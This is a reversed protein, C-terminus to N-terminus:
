SAMWILLQIGVAVMISAGLSLGAVVLRDRVDERVRRRPPERVRDDDSRAVQMEVGRQQEDTAPRPPAEDPWIM